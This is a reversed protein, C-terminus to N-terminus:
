TVFVGLTRGAQNARHRRFHCVFYCLAVHGHLVLMGFIGLMAVDLIAFACPMFGVSCVGLMGHVM